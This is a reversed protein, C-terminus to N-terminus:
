CQWDENDYLDDRLRRFSPEDVERLAVEARGARKTQQSLMDRYTMFLKDDTYFVMILLIGIVILLGNTILYAVTFHDAFILNIVGILAILVACFARQSCRNNM